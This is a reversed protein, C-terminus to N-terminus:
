SRKNDRATLMVEREKKRKKEYGHGVHGVSKLEGFFYNLM